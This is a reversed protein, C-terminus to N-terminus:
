ASRYQMDDSEYTTNSWEDCTKRCGLAGDWGGTYATSLLVKHHFVLHPLFNKCELRFGSQMVKSTKVFFVIFFLRWRGFLFFYYSSTRFSSSTDFFKFQFSSLEDQPTIFDTMFNVLINVLPFRYRAELSFYDDSTRQSFVEGNWDARKTADWGNKKERMRKRKEQDRKRFWVLNLVPIFLGRTGYSSSSVLHWNTYCFLILFNFQVFWNLYRQIEDKGAWTKGGRMKKGVTKWVHSTFAWLKSNCCGISQWFKRGINRVLNM